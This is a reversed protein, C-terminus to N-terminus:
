KTAKKNIIAGTKMDIDFYWYDTLVDLKALVNHLFIPGTGLDKNSLEWLKEGDKDFAILYQLYYENLPRPENIKYLIFLLEGRWSVAKDIEIKGKTNGNRKLRIKKDGIRVIDGEYEFDMNEYRTELVEGTKYDVKYEKGALNKFWLEGKNEQLLHVFRHKVGLHNNENFKWTIKGTKNIAIFNEAPENEQVKMPIVLVDEFDSIIPGGRGPIIIPRIGKLIIAYSNGERQITYKM